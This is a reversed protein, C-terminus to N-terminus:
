RRGRSWIITLGNKTTMKEKWMNYTKSDQHLHGFGGPHLLAPLPGHRHHAVELEEEVLQPFSFHRLGAHHDALDDVHPLLFDRGSVEQPHKLWLIKLVEEAPLSQSSDGVHQVLVCSPTSEAGRLAGQTQTKHLTFDACSSSELKIARLRM